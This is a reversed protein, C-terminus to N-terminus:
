APCTLFLEQGTISIVAAEVEGTKENRLKVWLEGAFMNDGPGCFSTFMEVAQKLDGHSGGFVTDTQKHDAHPSHVTIGTILYAVEPKM